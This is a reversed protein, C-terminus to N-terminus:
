AGTAGANAPAPGSMGPGGQPAAPSQLGQMTEGLGAMLTHTADALHAAQATTADHQALDAKQMIAILKAEFTKNISELKVARDAAKDGLAKLMKMREAMLGQMQHGLTQILSQAEPPIDKMAQMQLHPPVLMALRAAMEEAGPWDQNKAILDAVVSATQPMAQVFQMMSEAAEIRKTAYSPGTEVTVGYRGYTPDFIKLKKPKGDPGRKIAQTMPQGSGPALMVQEQKDDNRTITVMRRADYVNPILDVLIVGSHRLSRGLNDVYHFSGMDGNRQLERLARGSEDRLREQLTADFRIGTTAMMDQAAGQISNEVAADLPDPAIRSPPPANEGNLNTPKYTLTTTTARNANAWEDEHGEDQGEAMLWKAKPALAVKETQLTRFFNFMRQADKAHRIVGSFIVKGEVDVEDGTVRVVPIWIGPWEKEDLVEVGSMKWWMVKRQEAEREKTVEVTGAEIQAKVEDSLDDFFGVHGNSLAVLRKTDTKVEFYEAVRVTDGKIWDALKEGQAGELLPMPDADPYQEEFEDRPMMETVFCFRADAGTPDQCDPDMYVTFPNRVRAWRIVQDFSDPEDYETLFRWYGWGISVACDAATDIAIDAHSDREISRILGRYMLAVEKDGADGMPSVVISPRNERIANTVQHVFTPMKNITLCPQRDFNRQAQIDSPWQDGSKFRLDEVGSRRNDGEAAICRQLRKQARAMLKDRDPEDRGMMRDRAKEDGKSEKDAALAKPPLKNMGPAMKPMGIKGSDRPKRPDQAM